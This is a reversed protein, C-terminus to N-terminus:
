VHKLGSILKMDSVARGRVTFKRKKMTDPRPYVNLVLPKWLELRRLERFPFNWDDRNESHFTRIM